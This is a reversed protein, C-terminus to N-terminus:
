VLTAAWGHAGDRILTPPTRFVSDDQCPAALTVRMTPEVTVV